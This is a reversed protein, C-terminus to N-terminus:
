NMRTLSWDDMFWGNNEIAWRGRIAVTVELDQEHTVKIVTQLTNKQGFTPLIWNSAQGNVVFRVEGSLPDPAWIKEGDTYGVVLDPFININLLYTGPALHVDTSLRYSLAGSGKFIKVTWQGDWLFLDHEDKPLFDRSLLRSEPRVFVNWPQPDLPNEGEDWALRWQLPVQIEAIGGPHSWGDEFSPNPLLNPAGPVPTIIPRPTPTPTLDYQFLPVYYIRTVAVVESVTSDSRDARETGSSRGTGVVLYLSVLLFIGLGVVLLLINKRWSIGM